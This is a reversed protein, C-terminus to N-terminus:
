MSSVCELYIDLWQQIVWLIIVYYIVLSSYFVLTVMTKEILLTLPVVIKISEFSIWVKFKFIYCLVCSEFACYHKRTAINISSSEYNAHMIGDGNLNSESSIIESLGLRMNRSRQSYLSHFEHPIWSFWWPMLIFSLMKLSLRADAGALSQTLYPPTFTITQRNCLLKLM